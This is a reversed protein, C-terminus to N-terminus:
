PAMITAMCWASPMTEPVFWIVPLTSRGNNWIMLTAGVM